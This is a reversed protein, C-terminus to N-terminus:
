MIRVSLLGAYIYHVRGTCPIAQVPLTYTHSILDEGM